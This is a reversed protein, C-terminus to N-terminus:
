FNRAMITIRKEGTKARGEATLPVKRIAVTQDLNGGITIAQDGHIGIVVNSHACFDGPLSDYTRVANGCGTGTRFASVLDGIQLKRESLRVAWYARSADNNVKARKSDSLYETHRQSFRFSKALAAKRVIFSIFAASWAVGVSEFPLNLAQWYERIRPEADEEVLTGYLFDKFEIGVAEVLRDVEPNIEPRLLSIHVFGNLTQGDIRTQCPQWQGQQAGTTMVLHGVPLRTLAVVSTNPTARLNASGDSSDIRLNM